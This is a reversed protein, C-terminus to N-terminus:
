AAHGRDSLKASALFAANPMDIHGEREGEERGIKDFCRYFTAQGAADSDLSKAIGGRLPDSLKFDETQIRIIM